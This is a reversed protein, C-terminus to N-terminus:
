PLFGTIDTLDYYQRSWGYSYYTYDDLYPLGASFYYNLVVRFSNVPSISPYLDTTGGHPLYYANLIPMRQALFNKEIAWPVDPESGHDSQLIIIPPADSQALIGRLSDLILNATFLTQELFFVKGEPTLATETYIQVREPPNELLNGYRDFVFPPHPLLIHAFTFTPEDMEAVTPLDEAIFRRAERLDDRLWNQIFPKLLTSQLLIMDLESITDTGRRMDACRSISTPEVTSDYIIYSYGIKRLTHCMINDQILQHLPTLDTSNSDWSESLLVQTYQMNLASALSSLTVLYNTYSDPAVYFGIEELQRYFEHHDYSYFQHLIKENPFADLIIYYIDPLQEYGAAMPNIDLADTYARDPKQHSSSAFISLLPIVLLIISTFNLPEMLMRLWNGARWILMLAIILLVGWVMLLTSDTFMSLSLRDVLMNQVHGYSFFLIQLILTTLAAKTTNYSLHALGMWVVGTIFLTLAAPLILDTGQTLRKFNNAYINLFPYIAFLAPYFSVSRFVRM